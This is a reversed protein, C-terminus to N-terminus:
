CKPDQHVDETEVSERLTVQRTAATAPKTEPEATTRTTDRGSVVGAAVQEHTVAKARSSSRLEAVPNTEAPSRPQRRESRLNKRKSRPERRASRPKRRESWLKRRASRLERRM